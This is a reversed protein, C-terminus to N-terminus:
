KRGRFYKFLSLKKRRKAMVEKTRFYLRLTVFYFLEVFSLVSGGMFLGAAGGISSLFSSLDYSLERSYIVTPRKIELTMVTSNIPANDRSNMLFIERIVDYRIQIVLIYYPCYMATSATPKLVYVHENCKELCDCSEPAFGDIFLKHKIRGICRLEAASCTMQGDIPKAFHPRCHCKMLIERMRCEAYCASETYFPVTPLGGDVIMKCGRQRVSLSKLSVHMASRYTQVIASHLMKSEVLNRPTEFILYELPDLLSIMSTHEVRFKELIKNDSPYYPFNFPGDQLPMNQKRWNEMSYFKATMSRTAFCLGRETWVWTEHPDNVNLVNPSIDKKLDYLVDTWNKAPFKDYYPTEHVNDYSVNSLFTFFEEAEPTHEIGYRKFVEPIKSRVINDVPCIFLSLKLLKFQDFDLSVAITIAENQYREWFISSLLILCSLCGAIVLFSMFREVPHRNPAVLHNFGHLSSLSVCEVLYKKVNSKPNITPMGIKNSLDNPISEKGALAAKQRTQFDPVIEDKYFYGGESAM